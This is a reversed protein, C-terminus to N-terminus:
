HNIGLIHEIKNLSLKAEFQDKELRELSSKVNTQWHVYSNNYSAYKVLGWGIVSGLITCCPIFFVATLTSYLDLRCLGRTHCLRHPTNRVLRTSPSVLRQM